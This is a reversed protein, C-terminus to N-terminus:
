MQDIWSGVRYKFVSYIIYLCYIEYKYYAGIWYRTVMM